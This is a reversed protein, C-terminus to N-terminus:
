APIRERDIEEIVVRLSEPVVFKEPYTLSKLSLAQLAPHAQLLRFIRNELAQSGIQDTEPLLVGFDGNERGIIDEERLNKRLFNALEKYPERFRDDAREQTPIKILLLSFPRHHRRAKKFEKRFCRKFYVPNFLPHDTQDSLPKMLFKNEIDREKLFEERKKLGKKIHVLVKSPSYPKFVLDDVGIDFIKEYTEENIAANTVIIIYTEPSNRKLKKIMDETSEFPPIYETIIVSYKGKELLRYAEVLDLATDVSYTEEELIMQYANVLNKFPDILLIWHDTM